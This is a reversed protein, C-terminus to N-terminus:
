HHENANRMVDKAAKELSRFQVNFGIARWDEEMFPLMDVYPQRDARTTIVFNIPQGDPSLRWGNGDRKDYGAADLLQNAMDPDYQTFQTGMEEDYFQVE